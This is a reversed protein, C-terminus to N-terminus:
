KESGHKNRKIRELENEIKKGLDDKINWHRNRTCKEYEGSNSWKEFNRGAQMQRDCVMRVFQIACDSNRGSFLGTTHACIWARAENQQKLPSDASLSTDTEQNVIEGKKESTGGPNASAQPIKEPSAADGRMGSNPKEVTEVDAKEAPMKVVDIQKPMSPTASGQEADAIEAQKVKNIGTLCWIAIGIGIAACIGLIRWPLKKRTESVAGDPFDVDLELISEPASALKKALLKWCVDPEICGPVFAFTIPVINRGFVDQSPRYDFFVTIDGYRRWKPREDELMVYSQKVAQEIEPYPFRAPNWVSNEKNKWYHHALRIEM